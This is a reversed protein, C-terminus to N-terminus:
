AFKSKASTVLDYVAKVDPINKFQFDPLYDDLEWKEFGFSIHGVGNKIELYHPKVVSIHKEKIVLGDSTEVYFVVRLNTILYHCGEKWIPWSANPAKGQWLVEEGLQLKSKFGNSLIASM